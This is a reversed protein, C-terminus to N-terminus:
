LLYRWFIRWKRGEVVWVGGMIVFILRGKSKVLSPRHLTLTAHPKKETPDDNIQSMLEQHSLQLGSQNSNRSSRTRHQSPISGGQFRKQLTTREGSRRGVGRQASLPQRVKPKPTGLVGEYSPFKNQGKLSKRKSNINKSEPNTSESGLAEIRPHIQTSRVIELTNHTDRNASQTELNPNIDSEEGVCTKTRSHSPLKSGNSKKGFDFETSDKSPYVSSKQTIENNINQKQNVELLVDELEIKLKQMEEFTCSQVGALSDDEKFKSRLSMEDMQHGSVSQFMDKHVKKKRKKKLPLKRKTEVRRKIKKKGGQTPKQKTNKSRTKAKGNRGSKSSKAGDAKRKGKNRVVQSSSISDKGSLANRSKSSVLSVGLRSKSRKNGNRTAAKRKKSERGTEKEETQTKSSFFESDKNGENGAPKVQLKETDAGGQKIPIIESHTILHQININAPQNM